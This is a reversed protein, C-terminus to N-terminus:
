AVIAFGASTLTLLTLLNAFEAGTGLGTASGNQNYYLSGSSTSYVILATSIAALDDDAVISFDAPKSFGNGVLSKLAAFTTKSLVFKDSSPTFDTILDSGIDGSVFAHGSNYLFRDSGTGGTLTDNGDGGSIADNGDGGALADNGVEGRMTDNGSRGNLTDNGVGGTLTNNASNGTLINNGANGRGNIPATGILKLNEVYNPLIWTLSSKWTDTIIVDGIAATPNISANVPNSLSVIFSEDPENLNDDLLPIRITATSSNAPIILTRTQSTYDLNSSANVPTTTYNVRIEQSSPNNLSVTLFANADKGETVTVDNISLTPLASVPPEPTALYIEYDTGEKGQWVINNGSIQPDKDDFNNNTLQVTSSGNYLYIEYDTGDYGQWVVNNGSIQPNEDNFTNNTLRITSTGNYLYIEENGQWVVNNGSIQPNEDDFNNNTLRITSSGNYLFIELDSNFDVRVVLGEWVVNNGSIQPNFDGDSFDSTLRISTNGNYFYVEFVLGFTLFNYYSGMWVVNNGSIQPLTRLVVYNDLLIPQGGNKLLYVEPEAWVVNSGSIQPNEDHVTNDTLQKIIYGNTVTLIIPPM